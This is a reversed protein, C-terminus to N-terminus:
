AASERDPKAPDDPVAVVFEDRGLVDLTGGAAPITTIPDLRFTGFPLPFAGTGAAALLTWPSGATGYVDLTLPQGVRPLSRWSLRRATSSYLTTPLYSPGILEKM